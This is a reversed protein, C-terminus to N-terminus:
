CCCRRLKPWLNLHLSEPIHQTIFVLEWSAEPAASAEKAEKEHRKPPEHRSALLTPLSRENALFIPLKTAAAFNAGAPNTFKVDFINTMSKSLRMRLDEQPPAVSTRHGLLRKDFVFDLHHYNPYGNPWVVATTSRKGLGVQGRFCGLSSRRTRSGPGTSVLLMVQVFMKRQYWTM